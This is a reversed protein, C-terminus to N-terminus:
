GESDSEEEGEEEPINLFGVVKVLMAHIELLTRHRELEREKNNM